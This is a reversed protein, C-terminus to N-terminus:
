AGMYTSTFFARRSHCMTGLHTVAALQHARRPDNRAGAIGKRRLRRIFSEVVVQEPSRAVSAATAASAPHAVDLESPAAEDEFAM